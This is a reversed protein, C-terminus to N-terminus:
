NSPILGTEDINETVSVLQAGSQRIILTIDFDDGRNRALRDIKRVIVFDADLESRYSNPL